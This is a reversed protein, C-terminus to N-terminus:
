KNYKDSKDIVANDVVLKGKPLTVINRSADSIEM